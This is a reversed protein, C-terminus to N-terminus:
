ISREDRVNAPRWRRLADLYMAQVDVDRWVNPGHNGRSLPVIFPSDM